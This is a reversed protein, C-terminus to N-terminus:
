FGRNKFLKILSNGSNESFDKTSNQLIIAMIERYIVMNQKLYEISAKVYPSMQGKDNTRGKTKCTYECELYSRRTNAFDEILQESVFRECGASKVWDLTIKYIDAASPVPIHEYKGYIDLHAPSDRETQNNQTNEEGSQNNKTEPPFKLVKPKRHSVADIGEDVRVSLAKKPRGAGTRKGGRPV